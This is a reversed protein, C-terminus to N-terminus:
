FSSLDLKGYKGLSSYPREDKLFAKEKRDHSARERYSPFIKLTLM